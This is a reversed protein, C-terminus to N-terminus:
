ANFVVGERGLAKLLRLQQHTRFLPWAFPGLCLGLVSWRRPGMAYQHAKVYFVGSFVVCLSFFVWMVEVEYLAFHRYELVENYFIIQLLANGRKNHSFAASHSSGARDPSAELKEPLLRRTAPNVCAEM